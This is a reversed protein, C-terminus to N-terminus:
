PSFPPWAGCTLAGRRASALADIGLALVIGGVLVPTAVLIGLACLILAAAGLGLVSTSPAILLPASVLILALVAALRRM